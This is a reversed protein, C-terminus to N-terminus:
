KGNRLSVHKTYDYINPFIATYQVQIHVVNSKRKLLNEKKHELFYEQSHKNLCVVYRLDECSQPKPPFSIIKSKERVHTLAM